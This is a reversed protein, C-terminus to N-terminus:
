TWTAGALTGSILFSASTASASMSSSAPGLDEVLAGSSVLVGAGAGVEVRVGSSVDVGDGIVGADTKASANGVTVMTAGSGSGVM